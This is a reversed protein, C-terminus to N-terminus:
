YQKCSFARGREALGNLYETMDAGVRDLRPVMLKLKGSTFVPSLKSRMQKWKEGDVSTLMNM